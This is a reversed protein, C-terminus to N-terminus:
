RHAHVSWQVLSTHTRVVIERTRGVIGAHAALSGLDTRANEDTPDAPELYVEVGRNRMARSVEGQAPDLVLFIRFDPHPVVTRLGDKSGCESLQLTGGPELLANLRDLVTPNCLNANHLLVWHGSEVARTLPGDVWEFCGSDREAAPRQLATALDAASAAIADADSPAAGDRAVEAAAVAIEEAQKVLHAHEQTVSRSEGDRKAGELRAAAQGLAELRTSVDADGLLVVAAVTSALAAAARRGLEAVARSQESQEFGGLLDSTDTGPTLALEVLPREALQALVRVVSSKGVGRPGVLIGMWGLQAAHALAELHRKQSQLLALSDDGGRLTGVLGRSVHAWGVRLVEADLLVDPPAAGERDDAVGWVERLAEQATARDRPSRLRRVFLVDALRRAAVDQDADAEELRREGRDEVGSSGDLSASQSADPSSEAGGFHCVVLECWRLLDRLNFEWPGGAANGLSGQIRELYNVMRELTAPALAPHMSRGIRLLDDRALLEVHVRAFRNLFSKPLGKRGGGEQVPNQAGFLRFTPPCRFTRDLEPVYVEARHDLLANLGELVTQNALNLEDLLVWHGNKLAHLLPGDAWAFEGSSGEVPLDAGLLDMMDTQESLNIRVLTRGAAKAIASVLSTKGVGPSGELLIARPLQMARLVRLCNRRITLPSFDFQARAPNEGVVPVEFPAVGWVGDGYSPEDPCSVARELREVESADLLELLRRWCKERLM